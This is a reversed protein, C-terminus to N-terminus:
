AIRLFVTGKSPDSGFNVSGMARWTGSPAVGYNVLATNYIYPNEAALGAYVLSSGAYSTGAIINGTNSNRGLFAYSGVVGVDTISPTVLSQIAAKIKAPSVLSETSSTGSEWTSTAQDGILGVQSGSSNVVQTDDLIRFASSNQDLYGVSIWSSNSENRMKLTNSGTDYWLMNAYTTTPASSGSSLSGLAKLALNLDARVASATQNAIDFDHQSM